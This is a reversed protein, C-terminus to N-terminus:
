KARRRLFTPVDWDEDALANGNEALRASEMRRMYAPRELDDAGSSARVAALAPEPTPPAYLDASEQAASQPKPRTLEQQSEFGTAIITVVLEDELAPDIM